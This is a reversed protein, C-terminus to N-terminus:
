LYWFQLASIEVGRTVKERGCTKDGKGYMTYTICDYGTPHAFGEGSCDLFSGCFSVGFGRQSVGAM